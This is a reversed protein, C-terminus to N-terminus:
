TSPNWVSQDKAKYLLKTEIKVTVEEINGQNKVIQIRM